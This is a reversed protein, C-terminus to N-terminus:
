VEPLSLNVSSFSMQFDVLPPVLFSSTFYFMSLVNGVLRKREM